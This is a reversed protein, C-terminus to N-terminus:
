GNKEEMNWQSSFALLKGGLWSANATQLIERVMRARQKVPLQEVAALLFEFWHIQLQELHYRDMRENAQDLRRHFLYGLVEVIVGSATGVVGITLRDSWALTIGTFIMVFGLLSVVATVTFNYHAQRQSQRYDANIKNSVEHALRRLKPWDSLSQKIAELIVGEGTTKSIIRTFPPLRNLDWGIGQPLDAPDVPFATLIIKPLDRFAPEMAILLGKHDDPDSDKELRQDLLALDVRGSILIRRAEAANRAPLVSYGVEELARQLTERYGSDNDAILVTYKM